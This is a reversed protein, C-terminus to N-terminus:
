TLIFKPSSIPYQPFTAHGAHAPCAGPLCEGLSVLQQLFLCGLLARHVEM